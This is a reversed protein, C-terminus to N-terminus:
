FLLDNCAEVVALMPLPPHGKPPRDKGATDGDVEWVVIDSFSGVSQLSADIILGKLSPPLKHSAGEIKRGRFSSELAEGEGRSVLFFNAVDTPGDAMITCPLHHLAASSTINNVDVSAAAPSM